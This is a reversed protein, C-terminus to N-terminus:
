ATARNGVCRDNIKSRRDKLLEAHLMPLGVRSPLLSISPKYHEAGVEIKEESAETEAAKM